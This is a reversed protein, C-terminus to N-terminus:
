NDTDISTYVSYAHMGDLGDTIWFTEYFCLLHVGKKCSDYTNRHCFIVPM